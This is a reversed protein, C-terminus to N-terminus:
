AAARGFSLLGLDSVQGEVQVVFAVGASTVVKVCDPNSPDRGATFEISSSHLADELLNLPLGRRIVWPEIRLTPGGNPVDFWDFHVLWVVEDAFYVEVDGYKWIDSQEIPKGAAYDTPAGLSSLVEARTLGISLLGLRGTRAFEELSAAIAECSM